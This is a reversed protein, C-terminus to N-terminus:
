SDPPVLNGKREELRQIKSIISSIYKVVGDLNQKVEKNPIRIFHVGFGELIAQREKDKLQREPSDHSSGDVEIALMLEHCYFDVIFQDIPLQRHFQFGLKRKRIEKWLLVESLTSNKRLHRAYSKLRPNYPIIINRAM